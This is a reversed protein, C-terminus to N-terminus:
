SGTVPLSFMKGCENDLHYGLMGYLLNLATDIDDLDYPAKYLQFFAPCIVQSKAWEVVFFGWGKCNRRCLFDILTKAAPSATIGDAEQHFM